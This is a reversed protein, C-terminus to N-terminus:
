RMPVGDCAAVIGAPAPGAALERHEVRLAKLADRRICCSLSVRGSDSHVMGGYGGPLALLPMLDSPLSTRTFHAKFGLLDADRALRPWQQTPLVGAEWAGHAAIVLRAAITQSRGTGREVIVCECADGRADCREFTWPQRVEAGAGAAAPVADLHGRGLAARTSPNPDPLQAAIGAELSYASAASRLARSRSCNRARWPTGAAAMDDRFHNVAVQAPPKERRGDCGAPAPPLLAATTGAPRGVMVHPGDDIIGHDRCLLPQLTQPYELLSWRKTSEPAPLENGSDPTSAPSPM